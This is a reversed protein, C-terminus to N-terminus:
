HRRRNSEFQGGSVLKVSQSPEQPLNVPFWGTVERLEGPTCPRIFRMFAKSVCDYGTVLNIPCLEPSGDEPHHIFLIWAHPDRDHSKSRWSYVAVEAPTGSVQIELLVGYYPVLEGDLEYVVTVMAGPHVGRTLPLWDNKYEEPRTKTKPKIRKL